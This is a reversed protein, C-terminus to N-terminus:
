RFGGRDFVQGLKSRQELDEPSYNWIEMKLTSAADFGPPLRAFFHKPRTTESIVGGPALWFFKNTNLADKYAYIIPSPGINVLQWYKTDSDFTHLARFENQSDVFLDIFDPQTPPSSQIKIEILEALIARLLDETEGVRYWRV